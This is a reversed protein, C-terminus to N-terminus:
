KPDGGLKQAELVEKVKEAAATANKVAAVAESEHGDVIAKAKEVDAQLKALTKKLKAAEKEANRAVPTKSTPEGADQAAQVPFNVKPQANLALKVISEATEVANQAHQVAACQEDQVTTKAAKVEERASENAGAPARAVTVAGAQAAAAVAHAAAIMAKKTAEVITSYLENAATVSAKVTVAADSCAEPAYMPKKGALAQKLRDKATSVANKADFVAMEVKGKAARVTRVAQKARAMAAAKVADESLQWNFYLLTVDSEVCAGQQASTQSRLRQGFEGEDKFTDNLYAEAAMGLWRHALPKLLKVNDPGFAAFIVSGHYGLKKHTQIWRSAAGKAGPLWTSADSPLANQGEASASATTIGIYMKLLDGHDKELLEVIRRVRSLLMNFAASFVTAADAEEPVSADGLVGISTNKGPVYINKMEEFDLLSNASKELLLQHQPEPGGVECPPSVGRDILQRTFSVGGFGDKDEFFDFETVGSSPQLYYMVTDVCYQVSVPGGNEAVEETGFVRTLFPKPQKDREAQANYVKFCGDVNSLACGICWIALTANRSRLLKHLSNAMDYFTWLSGDPFWMATSPKGTVKAPLTHGAVVVHIRQIRDDLVRQVFDLTYDSAQTALLTRPADFIVTDIPDEGWFIYETLEDTFYEAPSFKSNEDSLPGCPVRLTATAPV